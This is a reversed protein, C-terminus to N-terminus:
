YFLNLVPQHLKGAFHDYPGHSRCVTPLREYVVNVLNGMISWRGVGQQCKHRFEKNIDHPFIQMSNVNGTCVM